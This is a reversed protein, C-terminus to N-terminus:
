AARLFTKATMNPLLGLIAQKMSMHLIKAAEEIHGSFVHEADATFLRNVETGFDDVFVDHLDNLVTWVKFQCGLAPLVDTAFAQYDGGTRGAVFQTNGPLFFKQAFADTITDFAIRIKESILGNGDDSIFTGSGSAVANLAGQGGNPGRYVARDHAFM